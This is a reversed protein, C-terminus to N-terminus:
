KTCWRFTPVFVGRFVFPFTVMILEVSLVFLYDEGAPIFEPMDEVVVHTEQFIGSSPRLFEQLIANPDLDEAVDGKEVTTVGVVEELSPLITEGQSDWLETDGEELIPSLDRVTSSCM